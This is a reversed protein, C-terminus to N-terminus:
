KARRTVGRITQDPLIKKLNQPVPWRLSANNVVLRNIQQGVLHPEIGRCPTEVEPLEPM